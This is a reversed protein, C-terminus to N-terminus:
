WIVDPSPIKVRVHVDQLLRCITGHIYIPFGDSPRFGVWDGIEVNQGHFSVEKDDLFASPGKKLVLAAKGQYSDEERTKPTLFIGSKTQEPREYVGVLIRNGFVEVDSLDGMKDFIELRPDKEHNMLM